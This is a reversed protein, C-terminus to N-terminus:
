PRALPNGYEIFRRWAWTPGDGVSHFLRGATNNASESRVAITLRNAGGHLDLDAAAPGPRHIAPVQYSGDHHLCLKGNVWLWTEGPSQVVLRVPFPLGKNMPAKVLTQFLQINDDGSLPELDIFHSTAELLHADTPIGPEDESDLADLSWHAWPIAMLLGADYYMPLGDVECMISLRSTDPRWTQETAMAPFAVIRSQNPELPEVAGADGGDLTWGEPARLNIGVAHPDSTMNKIELTLPRPLDPSFRVEPPYTLTVSLPYDALVSISDILPRRRLEAAAAPSMRQPVPHAVAPADVLQVHSGYYAMVQQALDATQAMLGDLTEAHVMGAMSSSLVLQRGIPALWDEGISDPEILGLIAGLSAGTCDTDYECNVSALISRGFDEEGALWGLAIIALNMPVDTFNQNGHTEELRALVASRDGLERWAVVALRIAQAVECDEPVAALGQEILTDPDSEVFAMSQVVALFIAAYLGEGTHDCSADQWALYAALDPDGPALCAWLETRIAAGMGRTFGNDYSGTLPPRLGLELNRRCVGYEDPWMHINDLWGRALLTNTIPLGAERIRQLWVVQLDLDDNPIMEDPVPEYFTLEHPIPKGEWPQGLTGGVAKGLWCGLVKRCYEDYPIQIM